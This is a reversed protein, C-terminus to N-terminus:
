IFQEVLSTHASFTTGRRGIKRDERWREIKQLKLVLNYMTHMLTDVGGGGEGVWFCWGRVNEGFDAFQELEGQKLFDPGRYQIPKKYVGGPLPQIKWHIGLIDFNKMRLGM